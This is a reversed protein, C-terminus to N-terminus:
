KCSTSIMPRPIKIISGYNSKFQLPLKSDVHQPDSYYIYALVQLSSLNGGKFFSSIQSRGHVLYIKLLLGNAEHNSSNSNAQKLIWIKKIVQILYSDQRSEFEWQQIVPGPIQNNACYHLWWLVTDSINYALHDLKSTPVSLRNKLFHYVLEYNESSGQM